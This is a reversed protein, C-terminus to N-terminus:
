GLRLVQEPLDGLASMSGVGLRSLESRWHEAVEPPFVPLSTGEAAARLALAVWYAVGRRRTVNLPRGRGPAPGEVLRHLDRDAGLLYSVRHKHNKEEARRFEPFGGGAEANELWCGLCVDVAAEIRRVLDPHTALRCGAQALLCPLVLSVLSADNGRTRPAPDVIENCDALLARDSPPCYRLMRAHDVAAIVQAALATM